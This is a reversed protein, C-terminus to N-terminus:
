RPADYLTNFSNLETSELLQQQELLIVYLVSDHLNRLLSASGLRNHTGMLFSAICKHTHGSLLKRHEDNTHRCKLIYDIPTEGNHNRTYLSVGRHILMKLADGNKLDDSCNVNMRRGVGQIALLHACTEGAFNQQDLVIERYGPGPRSTAELLMMFRASSHAAAHMLPTNGQQDLMDVRVNNVLLRTLIAQHYGASAFCYRTDFAWQHLVSRGLTDQVLLSAGHALLTDVLACVHPTQSRERGGTPLMAFYIASHGLADRFNLDAGQKLLFDVVISKKNLCAAHLHLNGQKHLALGHKLHFQALQVMKTQNSNQRRIDCLVLADLAESSGELQM